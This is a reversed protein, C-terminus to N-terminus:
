SRNWLWNYIAIRTIFSLNRQLTDQEEARANMAFNWPELDRMLLDVGHSLKSRFKYFLEKEEPFVKELFPVHEKLFEKFRKTVTYKPQGCCECREIGRQPKDILCEIANVIELFASSNSERWIDNAQYFWSCAMFFKKWDGSNLSFALDFSKELNDPFELPNSTIAPHRSYYDKYPVRIIPQFDEIPTYEETKRPLGKYMYGEQKWESTFNNPSRECIAWFFRAYRSGSTIPVNSFLNLLRIYISSKENQRAFNIMMDPCSIYSFQLLFPHDAVQVKPKPATDPVPVIQFLDKYRFYGEAREQAFGVKENVKLSQDDVLTDKIKSQIENLEGVPFGESPNIKAIKGKKDLQVDLFFKVEQKRYRYEGPRIWECHGFFSLLASLLEQHNVKKLYLYNEDVSM